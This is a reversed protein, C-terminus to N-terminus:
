PRVRIPNCAAYAHMCICAYQQTHKTYVNVRYARVDYVYNALSGSGLANILRSALRNDHHENVGGTAHPVNPYVGLVVQSAEAHLKSRVWCLEHTLM